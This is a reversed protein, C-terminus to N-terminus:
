WSPWWGYGSGGAAWVIEGFRSTYQPPLASVLSDLGDDDKTSHLHKCTDIIDHIRSSLFTLWTLFITLVFVELHMIHISSTVRVGYAGCFFDGEPVSELGLCYTHYEDNCAECLLLCAHNDDRHCVRCGEDDFSSTASSSIVPAAGKANTSAGTKAAAIKKDPLNVPSSRASKRRQRKSDDTDSDLEVIITIINYLLPPSLM